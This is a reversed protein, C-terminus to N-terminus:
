GACEVEQIIGKVADLEVGLKEAIREAPMGRAYCQEITIITKRGLKPKKVGDTKPVAAKEKEGAALVIGGGSLEARVKETYEREERFAELSMNVHAFELIETICDECYDREVEEVFLKRLRPPIVYGRPLKEVENKEYEAAIKMGRNETLRGCRDCVIVTKKM